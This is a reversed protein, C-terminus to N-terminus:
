EESETEEDEEQEVKKIKYNRLTDKNLTFYGNTRDTSNLRSNKDTTITDEIYYRDRHNRIESIDYVWQPSFRTDTEEYLLLMALFDGVTEVSDNIHEIRPRTIKNLDELKRDFDLDYTRIGELKVEYTEGNLKIETTYNIRNVM